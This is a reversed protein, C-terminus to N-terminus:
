YIEVNYPISQISRYELESQIYHAMRKKNEDEMGYEPSLRVDVKTARVLGEKQKLSVIVGPKVEVTQTKNGIMIKVFAKIDEKSVIRERAIVGSRLSNVKEKTTTRIIGGITETQLSITNYQGEVSQYQNLTTHSPIGNAASGNTKWYECEYFVAGPHPETVLYQKELNGVINEYSSKVKKEIVELKGSLDELYANLLDYGIASFASGEERVAHIMQNLMGKASRQDFRDVNGFYLSYTGTLDNIDSDLVPTYRTGSDDTLCELNLFFDYGELDTPLSVLRGNRTLSHQKYVMKRNVVPFTNLSVELKELEKRTFAVPSILQIWFLPEDFPELVDPDIIEPFKASVSEQKKQANSIDLEYLYNKYYRGVMEFYHEQGSVDEYDAQRLTLLNGELDYVQTIKLLSDLHSGKLLLCISLAKQKQLVKKDAKIGIWTVHDDMRQKETTSTMFAVDGQEDRFTLKDGRMVCRVYANSLQHTGIPTFFLDRTQGKEMKSYYFHTKRGVELSHEIPLVKLLAHSPTPLNWKDGVLIRALRELLRGDSIKIEDDLRALEYSFVDLLMEIVPDIRDRDDIGWLRMARRVMREKVSKFDMKKSDEM